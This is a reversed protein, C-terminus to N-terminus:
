FSHSNSTPTHYPNLNRGNVEITRCASLIQDETIGFSLLRMVTNAATNQRAAVLNVMQLNMITNNLEKKLDGLRNYRDIDTMVRYPASDMPIGDEDARKIV